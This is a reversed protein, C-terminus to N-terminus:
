KSEPEKRENKAKAFEAKRKEMAAYRAEREARMAKERPGADKAM